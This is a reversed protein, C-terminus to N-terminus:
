RALPGPGTGREPVPGTYGRTGSTPFSLALLRFGPGGHPDPVEVHGDPGGLVRLWCEARSPDPAAVHGASAPAPALRGSSSEGVWANFAPPQPM